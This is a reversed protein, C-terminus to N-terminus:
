EAAFTFNITIIDNTTPSLIRVATAYTAMDTTVSLANLDLQAGNVTTRIVLNPIKNYKTIIAYYDEIPMPLTVGDVLYEAPLEAIPIDLEVYQSVYDAIYAATDKANKTTWASGNCFAFGERYTDSWLLPANWVKEEVTTKGTSQNKKIKAMIGWGGNGSWGGIAGGILEWNSRNYHLLIDCASVGSSSSILIIPHKEYEAVLEEITMREIEGKDYRKAGMPYEASEWETPKGDADVAKVRIIQGAEAIVDIDAGGGGGGSGSEPLLSISVGAFNGNEDINPTVVLKFLEGSEVTLFTLTVTIEGTNWNQSFTSGICKAYILSVGAATEEYKHCLCHADGGLLASFDEVTNIDNSGFEGESEWITYTYKPLFEKAIPHVMRRGAFRSVFKGADNKLFYIGTEPFVVTSDYPSVNEKQVIAFGDFDANYDALPAISMIYGLIKSHNDGDFLPTGDKACYSEGDFIVRIATADFNPDYNDTAYDEPMDAPLESVKYFRANDYREGLEVCLKGDINGDWTIPEFEYYEYHTRNLVHGPEGEAANWDASGGSSNSGGGSGGSGSGGGFKKMLAIDFLDRGM